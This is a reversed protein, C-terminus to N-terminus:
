RLDPFAVQQLARSVGLKEVGTSLDVDYQGRGYRYVNMLYSLRLLWVANDYDADSRIPFSIWGSDPVFRHPSARGETILVERVKVSFLIDLLTGSHIHGLEVTRQGISLNFERANFRHPAASIYTDWSTVRSELPELYNPM